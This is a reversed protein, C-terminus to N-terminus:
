HCIQLGQRLPLIKEDESKSVVPQKLIYLDDGFLWSGMNNQDTSFYKGNFVM